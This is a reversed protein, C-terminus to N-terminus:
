RLEKVLVIRNNVAGGCHTPADCVAGTMYPLKILRNDFKDMIWNLQTKSVGSLTGEVIFGKANALLNLLSDMSGEFALGKILVFYEGHVYHDLINNQKAKDFSLYKPYTALKPTDGGVEIITVNRDIVNQLFCMFLNDRFGFNELYSYNSLPKVPNYKYGYEFFKVARDIVACGGAFAILYLPIKLLPSFDQFLVILFILGWISSVCVGCEFLPEHLFKPFKRWLKPLYDLVFGQRQITFMGYCFFLGIIFDQIQM